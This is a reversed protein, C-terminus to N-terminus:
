AGILGHAILDDILAQVRAALQPLTVTASDFTARSPTGTAAVWGTRRAGVVQVSNIRYTKGAALFANGAFSVDASVPDVQLPLYDLAQETPNWGLLQESTAPDFPTLKVMPLAYVANGTNGWINFAAM